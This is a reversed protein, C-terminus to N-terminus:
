PEERQHGNIKKMKSFNFYIQRLQYNKSAKIGGSLPKPSNEYKSVPPINGTFKKDIYQQRLPTLLLEKYKSDKLIDQIELLFVNNYFDMLNMKNGNKCYLGECNQNFSFSTTNYHHFITGLAQSHKTKQFDLSATISCIIIQDLKNKELLQKKFLIIDKVLQYVRNSM